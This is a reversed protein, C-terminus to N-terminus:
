CTACRNVSPRRIRVAGILRGLRRGNRRPAGFEERVLSRRGRLLDALEATRRFPDAVVVGSGIGIAAWPEGGVEAILFEDDPLRTSDREALRELGLADAPDARRITFREIDSM